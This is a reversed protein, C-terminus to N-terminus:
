RQSIEVGSVNANLELGITRGRLDLVVGKANQLQITSTEGDAAVGEGIATYTGAIDSAWRLNYARGASNPKRHEL